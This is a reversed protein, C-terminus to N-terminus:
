LYYRLVGNVMWYFTYKAANFSSLKQNEKLFRYHDLILKQKKSTTSNKHQRYFALEQDLGYSSVGTKLINLWLAYDEKTRGETMYHKGLKGSDYIATLCSIETRKLLDKYSVPGQTVHFTDMIPKSDQDIYGYSSHSFSLQHQQMFEVQIKLKEPVWLDDADLFAILRGRAAHIAKNRSKGQGINQSNEILVFRSDKKAVQQLYDM